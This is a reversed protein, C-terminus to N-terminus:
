RPPEKPAAAGSAATLYAALFAGELGAREALLGPITASLCAGGARIRVGSGIGPARTWSVQTAGRTHARAELAARSEQPVESALEFTWPRGPLLRGAADIAAEVWAHRAELDQWRAELLAPLAQWMSALLKQLAEQGRQRQALDAQALAQRLGQALRAREERVATHVRERAARRGEDLIQASQRRAEEQASQCRAETSREIRALLAQVQIELPGEAGSV